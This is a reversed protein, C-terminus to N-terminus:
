NKLIKYSDNGLGKVYNNCMNNGQISLEDDNDDDDDEDDDDDDDDDDDENTMM